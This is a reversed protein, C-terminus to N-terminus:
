TRRQDEPSTGVTPVFEWAALQQTESDRLATALDGLQRLLDGYGPLELGAYYEILMSAAPTPGVGIKCVTAGPPFSAQPMAPFTTRSLAELLADVRAPSVHGRVTVATGRERREYVLEGARSLSLRERGWASDPAHESGQEFSVVEAKQFWTPEHSGTSALDPPIEIGRDKIDWESLQGSGDCVPCEGRGGCWGCRKSPELVVRGSGECHKCWGRGYCSVCLTYGADPSRRAWAPENM